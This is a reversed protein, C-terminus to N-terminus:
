VGTQMNRSAYELKYGAGRVAKITVGSSLLALKKRLFTMHVRVHSREAESEYGWLKDIILETSVLKGQGSVLLELLQSEKPTLNFSGGKCYLDLTHPNFEIDGFRLLGDQLLSGKRRALARLRALLEETQFPKALYDDAGSDLGKVKDELGGKATLLIVPTEIGQRRLEQLLSIGDRKPLMIDIILMDYLNTLAAELGSEGDYILDVSYHNKKLVHAVAKAMHKRDEIYLIRM